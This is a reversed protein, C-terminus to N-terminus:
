FSTYAYAPFTAPGSPPNIVPNNRGANHITDNTKIYDFGAVPSGSLLFDGAQGRHSFGPNVSVTGEPDESMALPKGNVLPHGKQWDSFGFFTWADKPNPPQGCTNAQEPPPPNTLVHFAQVDNAFGGDIRWYLNGQFNQFKNYDMGCSDACGRLAYFGSTHDLDFYFINNTVNVRVGSSCSQPWPTQELFMGKRAFAVINNNFTNASHGPAPGLTMALGDGSVRYVVNDEVDVGASEIDLYVGVGGYGAGQLRSDVISSDSVDHILNNLVKNGTGSGGNSGVDYYLAGGDSTVGQIVNWIHNYQTIIRNGNAQWQYSPCGNNCISIGAHYGDNIDNHQFVVDHGSGMAIGEGNVFVRSFAQVINNQVTIFQPVNAAFDGGSPSHGVRIAAAGIDYFASNQIFSNESPANKNNPLLTAILIGNASTHRVIVSDFTVNQCSECDVAQPLPYEENIDNNLGGASPMFNDVAFTLGRFTVYSLNNAFLLSAGVYDTAPAGPIPGGLQAIVVHDQNPNEDKNALYNLTWFKTSRDLFWLGTQGASQAKQFADKTNEIVYRHGVTPGFFNYGGGGVGKTAGSFYVIHSATDVCAIRMIDETWANIVNIEVDGAPYPNSGNVQCPHSPNGTYIGNLNTWTAVPDSPNYYYRDLCKSQSNGDSIAPCGTNGPTVTNAIRLFTGLNCLSTEVTQGTQTSMCSGGNMYYGVGSSSQLRSRLRRRGNYYLYEFPQINAPLQVQWLNGSPNNWTLGLGHHGVPVGGNMIATERPYNEWTIPMASTGSDSAAFQLTGPNTPSLPLYYIGHRLMVSIPRNPHTQILARVAIQARAVSAFPGDTHQSNPTPLQGSWSDSGNVAVYFDAKTAASAWATITLVSALVLGTFHSRIGSFTASASSSPSM